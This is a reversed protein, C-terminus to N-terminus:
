SLGGWGPTYYVTTPGAASGIARVYDGACAVIVTQGPAVPMDATASAATVASDGFRIFVIVTSSSNYVRVHPERANANTRVQLATTSSATVSHNVTAGMDPAFAPQNVAGSM